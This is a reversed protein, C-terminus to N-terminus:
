APEGRAKFLQVGVAVFGLLFTMKAMHAVPGHDKLALGVLGIALAAIWLWASLRLVRARLLDVAWIVMGISWIASAIMYSAAGFVEAASTRVLLVGAIAVVFGALGVAGTARATVARAGLMGALLLLDILAYVLHPQPEVLRPYILFPAVVDIAVGLLVAVGALRLTPAREM